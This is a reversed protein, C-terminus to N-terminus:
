TAIYSFPAFRAFEIPLLGGLGCSPAEGHALRSMFAMDLIVPATRGSTPPIPYAFGKVVISSLHSFLIQETKYLNSILVKTRCFNPILSYPSCQSARWRIRPLRV